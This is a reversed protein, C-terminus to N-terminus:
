HTTYYKKLLSLLKYPIIRKKKKYEGLLISGEDLTLEGRQIKQTIFLKDEESM